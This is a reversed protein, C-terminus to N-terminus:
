CILGDQDIGLSNLVSSGMTSSTQNIVVKKAIGRPDGGTGAVGRGVAEQPPRKRNGACDVTIVGNKVSTL